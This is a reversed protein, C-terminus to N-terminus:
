SILLHPWLSAGLDFILFCLYIAVLDAGTVGCHRRRGTLPALAHRSVLLHSLSATSPAVHPRPREVSSYGLRILLSSRSAVPLHPAAAATTGAARPPSGRRRASSSTTTKKASFTTAVADDPGAVSRARQLLR